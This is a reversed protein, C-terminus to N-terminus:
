LRQKPATATLGLSRCRIVGQRTPYRYESGCHPCSLCGYINREGSEIDAEVKKQLNAMRVEM